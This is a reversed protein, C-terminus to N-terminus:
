AAKAKAGGEEEFATSANFRLSGEGV